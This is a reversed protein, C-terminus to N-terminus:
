LHEISSSNKDNSKYAAANLYTSGTEGFGNHIQRRKSLIPRGVFSNPSAGTSYVISRPGTSLFKLNDNM